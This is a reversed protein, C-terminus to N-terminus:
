AGGLEVMNRLFGDSVPTTLKLARFNKWVGLEGQAINEDGRITKAILNLQGRDASPLQLEQGVELRKCEAVTMDMRDVVVELELMSRRVSRQLAPSSSGSSDHANRFNRLREKHLEIFNDFEIMFTVSFTEDDDPLNAVVLLYRNTKDLAATTLSIFSPDGTPEAECSSVMWSSLRFLLDKTANECLLQLFVPSTGDLQAPAESLRFAAYKTMFAPSLQIGVPLPEGSAIITNSTSRALIETAEKADINKRVEIDAACEIGLTDFMWNSLLTELEEWYEAYNLLSPPLRSNTSMKKELLSVM